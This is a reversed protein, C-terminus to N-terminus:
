SVNSLARKPFPNSQISAHRALPYVTGFNDYCTSTTSASTESFASGCDTDGTARAKPSLSSPSPNDSGISFSTRITLTRHSLPPTFPPTSRVSHTRGSGSCDVSSDYTWQSGSGSSTYPSLVDVVGHNCQCCGVNTPQADHAGSSTRPAYCMWDDDGATEPESVHRTSSRYSPGTPKSRSSGCGM